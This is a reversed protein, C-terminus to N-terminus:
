RWLDFEVGARGTPDPVSESLHRIRPSSSFLNRKGDGHGVSGADLSVGFVDSQAFVSLDGVAGAVFIDATKNSEANNELTQIRSVWPHM